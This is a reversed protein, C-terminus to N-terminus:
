AISPYRHTNDWKCCFIVGTAVCNHNSSHDVMLPFLGNKRSWISQTQGRLYPFQGKKDLPKDDFTGTNRLHFNDCKPTSEWGQVFGVVMWRCMRLYSHLPQVKRHTKDEQACHDAFVRARGWVRQTLVMHNIITSLFGKYMGPIHLSYKGCKGQFIMFM